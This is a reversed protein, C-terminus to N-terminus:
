CRRAAWGRSMLDVVERFIEKDGLLPTIDRFIIGAQPYGPVDRVYQKLDEPLTVPPARPSLNPTWTTRISPANSCRLARM